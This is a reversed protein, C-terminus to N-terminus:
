RTRKMKAVELTRYAAVAAALFFDRESASSRAVPLVAWRPDTAEIDRPPPFDGNTRSRKKERKRRRALSARLRTSIGYRKSMATSEVLGDVRGDLRTEVKGNTGEREGSKLEKADLTKLQGRGKESPRDIWTAAPFSLL